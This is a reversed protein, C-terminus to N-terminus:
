ASGASREKNRLSPNTVPGGNGGNQRMAHSSFPQSRCPKYCADTTLPTYGTSTKGDGSVITMERRIAFEVLRHAAHAHPTPIRTITIRARSSYNDPADGVREDLERLPQDCPLWLEREWCM